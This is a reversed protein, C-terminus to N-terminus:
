VSSLWRIEHGSWLSQFAPVTILVRGTRPMTQTYHKLLGLDDDVHELVDMMLILEQTVCGLERRFSLPHGNHSEEREVTYGTDVCVSRAAIGWDLLQRSFFASGAGIDLVEAVPRDGVMKRLARAKSVYYWHDKIAPGLIEEEKLDM